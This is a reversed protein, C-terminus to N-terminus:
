VNPRPVIPSREWIQQHPLSECGRCATSALLLLPVGLSPPPHPPVPCVGSGYRTHQGAAPIQRRLSPWPVATSEQPQPEAAFGEWSSGSSYPSSFCGPPEQLLPSNCRAAACPLASQQRVAHAPVGRDGTGWDISLWIPTPTPPSGGGQQPVAPCPRPKALASGTSCGPRM